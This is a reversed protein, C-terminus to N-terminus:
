NPQVSIYQDHHPLLLLFGMIYMIDEELTVNEHRQIIETPLEHITTVVQHSKRRVTKGQRSGINVGLIDEAHLIDAKAIPFNPIM